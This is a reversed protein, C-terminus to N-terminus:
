DKMLRLLVVAMFALGIMAVAGMNMENFFQCLFVWCVVMVVTLPIDSWHRGEQWVRKVGFSWPKSVVQSVYVLWASGKVLAKGFVVVALGFLVYNLMMLALGTYGLMDPAGRNVYAEDADFPDAWANDGM